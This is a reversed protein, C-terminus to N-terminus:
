KSEVSVGNWSFKVKLSGVVSGLSGLLAKLKAANKQDIYTKTASKTEGVLVFDLMRPLIQTLKGADRVIAPDDIVLMFSEKVPDHTDTLILAPRSKFGVKKMLEVYSPDGINWRAVYLNKGMNEGWLQLKQIVSKEFDEDMGTPVYICYAPYGPPIETVPNPNYARTRGEPELPKSM